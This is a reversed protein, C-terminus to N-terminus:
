GLWEGRHESRLKGLESIMDAEMQKLTQFLEDLTAAGVTSRLPFLAGKAFAAGRLARKLQVVRLGYDLADQDRGTLAQALGGMAEGAGHYLTALAPSLRSGEDPVLADLRKILDMTQQLLPHREEEGAQFPDDDAERYGACEGAAADELVEGFAAQEDDRRPEDSFDTEEDPVTPVVDALAAQYAAEVDVGRSLLEEIARQMREQQRRNHKFAEDWLEEAAEPDAAGGIEGDDDIALPPHEAPRRLVRHVQAAVREIHRLLIDPDEAAERTLGHRKLGEALGDIAGKIFERKRVLEALDRLTSSATRSTRSGPSIPLAAATPLRSVWLPLNRATM